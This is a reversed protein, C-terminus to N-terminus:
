SLCLRRSRIRVLKSHPACGVDAPHPDPNRERSVTSRAQQKGAGLQSAGDLFVTLAALKRRVQQFVM